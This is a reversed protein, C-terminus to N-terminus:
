VIISDNYSKGYFVALENLEDGYKSYDIEFCRCAAGVIMIFASVAFWLSFGVMVIRPSTDIINYDAAAQGLRISNGLLSAHLELCARKYAYHLTQIMTKTREDNIENLVTKYLSTFTSCGAWWYKDKVKNNAMSILKNLEEDAQKIGESSDILKYYYRSDKCATIDADLYYNNIIGQMESKGIKSDFFCVTIMQEYINRALGLAGDPYGHASLVLIERMTIISKGATYALINEYTNGTQIHLRAVAEEMDADFMDILSDLNYLKWKETSATVFNLM